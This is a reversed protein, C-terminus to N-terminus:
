LTMPSIDGVLRMALAAALRRCRWRLLRPAAAARRHGGVCAHISCSQSVTSRFSISGAASKFIIIKSVSHDSRACAHLFFGPVDFDSWLLHYPTSRAGYVRVWYFPNGRNVSLQDSARCGAVSAPRAHGHRSPPSAASAGRGGGITPSMGGHGLTTERAM